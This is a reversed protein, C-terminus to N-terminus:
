PKFHPLNKKLPICYPQFPCVWSFLKEKKTNGFHMRVDSIKEPHYRYWTVKTLKDSIEM